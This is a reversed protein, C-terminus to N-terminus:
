VNNNFDSTQCSKVRGTSCQTNILPYLNSSNCVNENTKIICVNALTQNDLGQLERLKPETNILGTSYLNINKIKKPFFLEDYSLHIKAPGYTKYPQKCAQSGTGYCKYNHM